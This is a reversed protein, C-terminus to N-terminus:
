RALANKFPNEAFAAYIITAGSENSDTSGGQRAKFGNSLFDYANQGGNEAASSDPYLRNSEVNYLDRSSDWIEWDTGATTTNKILLFRPRFGLYVFPGDNSGNGTYSGFASYGAVAAFCYAVYTDGNANMETFSGSVYFVTSTPSGGWNAASAAGTGDLFLRNGSGTAVHYVDWSRGAVNRCKVIYMSPAVGLGHGVTAPVAGNGTYTVVSFGQTAGVSVTSTISGNTNSASTTGAKWQWAVYTAASTNMQALAGVTFGTSGFATLGTTETTEAGTNNSELQKQVGRVSDYLAHDTAASRSKAWVWDPQFSTSGVTNAVTLSAGTGTYLTAAMYAAGNTITSTPLNYTNLAVFGTPPTYTFPQQGFNAIFVGATTIYCHPRLLGSVSTIAGQSTNNKYFTLTNATLDLAVGITDGTTYTAGYATTAGNIEKNGAGTYAWYNVAGTGICGTDDSVGIESLNVYSSVYIEWYWKGSSVATTGYVNRTTNAGTGKLNGDSISMVGGSNGYPNLPNLVCYNAATASTLTPVDTMSDYTTGATVSINNVTWTNSNGSFDTGLAAATSNSSFNLYFGNTGYTGTYKAPQWVGTIANTSGFSSPTLAQGDIFNVETQYLDVYFASSITNIGMAHASTSNIQLNQTSTATITNTAFSTVRSGNVYLKCRDAQTANTLDLVVMLHYWASPDRLVQTSTLTDIYAVGGSVSQVNLQNSSNIQLVFFDNATTGAMFINQTVGLAGRKVWGSWTWTKQNSASAPTRSFYGSASSRLRVSRAITYGGSPRTLLTDKSAFM